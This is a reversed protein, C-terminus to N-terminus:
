AQHVTGKVEAEECLLIFHFLAKNKCKKKKCSMFNAMKVSKLCSKLLFLGEVPLLLLFLGESSGKRFPTAWPIEM